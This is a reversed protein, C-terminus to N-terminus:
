KLLKAEQFGKIFPKLEKYRDLGGRDVWKAESHDVPNLTFKYSKADIIYPVIIWRIELEDIIFPASTAGIIGDLCLEEKIERLITEEVQEKEECFGSIFEWENPSFKKESSRKAILYKDDYKVLATAIVLTRM